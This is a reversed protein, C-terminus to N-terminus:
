HAVAVLSLMLLLPMTALAVACLALLYCLLWRSNELSFFMEETRVGTSQNKRNFRINTSSRTISGM